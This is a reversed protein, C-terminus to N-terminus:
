PTLANTSYPKEDVLFTGNPHLPAAHLLIQTSGIDRFFGVYQTGAQLPVVGNVTTARDGLEGGRVDLHTPPTGRFKTAVAITFRTMIENPDNPSAFTTVPTCTFVVVATSVRQLTDFRTETPPTPTPLTLPQTLTAEGQTLSVAADTHPANALGADLPLAKVESKQSETETELPTVPNTCGSTLLVFVLLKRRM